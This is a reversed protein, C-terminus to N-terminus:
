GPLTSEDEPCVIGQSTPDPSGPANIPLWTEGFNQLAQLVPLLAQGKVTLRYEVRPPSEAYRTRELIGEQTLRRLRESLTRPNLGAVLLQGFRRPGNRLERLIVIVTVDAALTAARQIPCVITLLDQQM